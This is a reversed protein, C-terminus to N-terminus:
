QRGISYDRWWLSGRLVLTDWVLWSVQEVELWKILRILSNMASVLPFLNCSGLQQVLQERDMLFAAWSGIGNDMVTSLQATVATGDGSVTNGGFTLTADLTELVISSTTDANAQTALGGVVILLSCIKKM